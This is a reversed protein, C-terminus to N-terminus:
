SAPEPTTPRFGSARRAKRMEYALDRAAVDFSSPVPRHEPTLRAVCSPCGCSHVPFHYGAPLPERRDQHSM